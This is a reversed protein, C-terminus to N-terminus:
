KVPEIPYDQPGGVDVFRRVILDTEPDVIGLATLANRFRAALGFNSVDGGRLLGVICKSLPASQADTATHGCRAGTLAAALRELEVRPVRRDVPAISIMARALEDAAADGSMARQLVPNLHAVPDTNQAFLGIGAALVCALTKWM